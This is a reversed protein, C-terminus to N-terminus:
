EFRRLTTRFTPKQRYGIVQDVGKEMRGSGISKGAKQRREYDIIENDHKELYGILEQLKEVNKARVQERLYQVVEQVKGRWLHQCLFVVHLEKEQKNIAIMSM